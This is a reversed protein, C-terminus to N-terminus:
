FKLEHLSSRNIYNGLGLQGDNNEGCVYIKHTDTIIITHNYGCNISIISEHFNIETPASLNDYHSLGLQGHYNLGWGYIKGSSTLAMTHDGGCIISVINPLILERPSYQCSNRYGLGLQGIDNRGWVYIKNNGTMCYVHFDGCVVSVISEYFNLERPLDSNTDNGLGLQGYSNYGWSYIKGSYTLAITHYGGCCVTMPNLLPILEQPSERNIFDGLGLQGHINFGWVYCKQLSDVKVLAITHVRGCHISIIKGSLTLEQPSNRNTYDGLGLQGYCNDGCAYIKHNNTIFLTHDEGCSIETIDSRKFSTFEQPLFKNEQHGLGLQGSSSRGWVYIKDHLLINHYYGCIIKIPQYMALIILQIIEKPYHPGFIEKLFEKLVLIHRTYNQKSSDM